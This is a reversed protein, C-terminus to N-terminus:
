EPLFLSDLQVGIGEVEANPEAFARPQINFLFCTPSLQEKVRGSTAACADPMQVVICDDARAVWACADLDRVLKAQEWSGVRPAHETTSRGVDM